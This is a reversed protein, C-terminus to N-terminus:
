EFPGALKQGEHGSIMALVTMVILKLDLAWSMRDVYELDLELKRPMIVQTYLTGLEDGALLAEENLFALSAISTIGPRVSLVRRQAASYLAVYRPDEPRPGVISMEGRLVNLFQPLEDLKTKRLVRGVRTVRPDHGATIGPGVQDAAQVMSRFKFIRFRQGHQGTREGRHLVPGPSDLRVLLAITALLPSLLGLALSAALLDFVRKLM